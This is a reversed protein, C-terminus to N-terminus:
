RDIGKRSLIGKQYYHRVERMESILDARQLFEDPADRGTLILEVGAPKSEILQVIESVPILGYACAVNIEDLIVIDYQGSEIVSKIDNLGNDARKCDEDRVEDPHIMSDEGYRRITIKDDQDLAYLYEGYDVGKMFQGIFTKLGWGAARYAVGLAATTKGKGDGTYVHVYGKDPLGANSKDQRIGLKGGPLGCRVSKVGARVLSYM